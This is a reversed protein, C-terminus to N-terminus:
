FLRQFLIEALLLAAFGGAALHFHQTKFCRAVLRQPADFTVDRRRSGAHSALPLYYHM